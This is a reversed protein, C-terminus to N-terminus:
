ESQGLTDEVVEGSKLIALGSAGIDWGATM